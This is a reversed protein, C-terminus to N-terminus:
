EYLIKSLKSYMYKDNIENFIKKFKAGHGGDKYKLLCIQHAFEHYIAFELDVLKDLDISIDIPQFTIPNYSLCAGGKGVRKYKLPIPKVDELKCLEKYFKEIKVTSAKENIGYSFNEFTYYYNNM